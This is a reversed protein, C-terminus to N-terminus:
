VHSKLVSNSKFLFKTEIIIMMVVHIDEALNAPFWDTM